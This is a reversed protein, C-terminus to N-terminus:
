LGLWLPSFPPTAGSCGSGEICPGSAVLDRGCCTVPNVGGCVQHGLEKIEADTQRQKVDREAWALHMSTLEDTLAAVQDV